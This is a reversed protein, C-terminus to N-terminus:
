IANPKHAVLMNEKLIKLWAKIREVLSDQEERNERVEGIIKLEPSNLGKELGHLADRARCLFEFQEANSLEHNWLTTSTETRERHMAILQQGEAKYLLDDIHARRLEMQSNFHYVVDQGFYFSAAGNKRFGVLVSEEFDPLKFEARDVLGKADRLLDERDEEEKAMFPKGLYDTTSLFTKRIKNSLDATLM